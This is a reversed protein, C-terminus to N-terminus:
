QPEFQDFRPFSDNCTFDMATKHAGVAISQSSLPSASGPAAIPFFLAGVGSGGVFGPVISEISIDYTGALVPIDYTGILTPDHSGLGSDGPNDGSVTQGAGGTFLYGSTASFAVGKPNSLSRAIVNVGQAPTSGDHFFVSGSLIGYQSKFPIQAPPNNVTEPYLMSIWAMDDPSLMPLGADVRAQCQAIPFMVPLGALEAPDCNGQSQLLVDANIQSHDLGSFHGFEHVFAENFENDTLEGNAANGDIWAGNLAVEAAMIHGDNDLECAGAFGIVAPDLGLESFLSGNADFIIPKQAGKQCSGDVANFKAATDIAGGTYAGTPQIPGANQYRIDATPVDEWFQFLQQVRATAQANSLKGLKGASATRYPVPNTTDWVEAHGQAAASSTNGAVYLPGGAWLATAALGWVLTSLLGLTWRRSYAQPTM